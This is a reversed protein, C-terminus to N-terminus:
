SDTIQRETSARPQRLELQHVKCAPCRRASERPHLLRRLCSTRRLGTSRRLPTRKM